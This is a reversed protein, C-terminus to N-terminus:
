KQFHPENRRLRQRQAYEIKIQHAEPGPIWGFGEIKPLLRRMKKKCNLFTALTTNAFPSANKVEM